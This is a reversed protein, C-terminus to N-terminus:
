ACFLKCVPINMVRAIKFLAVIGFNTDNDLIKKYTSPAIKCIKCFSTKSLNNEKIYNTILDTKVIKNIM